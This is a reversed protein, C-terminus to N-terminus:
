LKYYIREEILDGKNDYLYKWMSRYGTGYSLEKILKDGKKWTTSTFDKGTIVTTEKITGNNEYEYFLKNLTDNSNSVSYSHDLQNDFYIYHITSLLKSNNDLMKQMTLIGQNDYVHYLFSTDYLATRQSILRAAEQSNGPRNRISIIAEIKLKGSDDYSKIISDLLLGYKKQAHAKLLGKENYYDNVERWLVKRGGNDIDFHMKAIQHGTSDYKYYTLGSLKNAFEQGDSYLYISEKTEIIRGVNDLANEYKISQTLEWGKEDNSPFNCAFMSIPLLLLFIDKMIATLARLTQPNSTTQLKM